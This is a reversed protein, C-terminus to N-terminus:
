HLLLLAKVRYFQSFKLANIESIHGRLAYMKSLLALTVILSKHMQEILTLLSRNSIRISIQKDGHLGKFIAWLGIAM